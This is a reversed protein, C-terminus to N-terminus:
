KVCPLLSVSQNTTRLKVWICGKHSTPSINLILLPIPRFPLVPAPTLIICPHSQSTIGEVTECQARFHSAIKFLTQVSLFCIFLFTDLFHKLPATKNVSEDDNQQMMVVTRM